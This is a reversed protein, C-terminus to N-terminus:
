NDQLIETEFLLDFDIECGETLDNNYLDVRVPLSERVHWSHFFTQGPKYIYLRVGNFDQGAVPAINMTDELIPLHITDNNGLFVQARFSPNEVPIYERYNGSSDPGGQIIYDFYVSRLMFSRLQCELRFTFNVQGDPALVFRRHISHIQLAPNRKM